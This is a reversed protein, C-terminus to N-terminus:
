NQIGIYNATSTIGYVTVGTPANLQNGVGVGGFSVNNPITNTWTGDGRLFYSSNATGTGLNAVPVQGSWTVALTGSTTIPSGSVSLGTPVSMAVSTVTGSGGGGGAPTAWTGDNRLFTTTSGTPATISYGGWVATNFTISNNPFTGSYVTANVDNLWSARIVTTGDIFTTSAM